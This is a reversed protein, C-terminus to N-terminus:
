QRVIFGTAISFQFAKKGCYRISGPLVPKATAEQFRPLEMCLLLGTREAADDATRLGVFQTM